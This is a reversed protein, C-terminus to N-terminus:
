RTAQSQAALHAWWGAEFEDKSAGFAAALAGEWTSHRRFAALLMPVGEVGYQEAVYAFLTEALLTAAANGTGSRLHTVPRDLCTEHSRLLRTLSPTAPMEAAQQDVTAGTHSHLLWQELGPLLPRWICWVPQQQQMQRLTHQLLSLQVASNLAEANSIETPTALLYPSRAILRNEELAPPQLQRTTTVVEILVKTSTPVSLGLTRYLHLLFRDMPQAAHAVAEADLERYRWHLHTTELTEEAGWFTIHPAARKWGSPAENRYFYAQRYARGEEGTQTVEIMAM